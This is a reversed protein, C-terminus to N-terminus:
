KLVPRYNIRAGKLSEVYRFAEQVTRYLSTLHAREGERRYSLKKNNESHTGKIKAFLCVAPRGSPRGSYLSARQRSSNKKSIDNFMM